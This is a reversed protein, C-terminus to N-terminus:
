HVRLQSGAIKIELILSKPFELVLVFGKFVAKNKPGNKGIPCRLKEAHLMM